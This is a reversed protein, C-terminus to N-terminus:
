SLTENVNEALPCITKVPLLVNQVLIRCFCQEVHLHDFWAPLIVRVTLCNTSHRTRLSVGAYM